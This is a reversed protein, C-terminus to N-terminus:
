RRVGQLLDAILRGRALGDLRATERRVKARSRQLMKRALADDPTKVRDLEIRTLERAAPSM